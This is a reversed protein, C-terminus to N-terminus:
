AILLSDRVEMGTRGDVYTTIFMILLDLVFFIDVFNDFLKLNKYSKDIKFAYDFPM